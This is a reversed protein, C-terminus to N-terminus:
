RCPWGARFMLAEADLRDQDNMGLRRALREVMAALDPTHEIRLATGPGAAHAVPRGQLDTVICRGFEDPAGAIWHEVNM